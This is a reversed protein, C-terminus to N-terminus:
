GATRPAPAATPHAGCLWGRAGPTWRRAILWQRVSKALEGGRDTDTVLLPSDGCLRCEIVTVVRHPQCEACHRLEALEGRRDLHLWTTALDAPLRAREHV